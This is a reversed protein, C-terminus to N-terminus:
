DIEFFEDEDGYNYIPTDDVDVYIKTEESGEKSSIESMDTISGALSEIWLHFPLM